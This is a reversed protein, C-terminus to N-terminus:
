LVFDYSELGTVSAGVNALAIQFDANGDGNTDGQVVYGAASHGADDFAISPMYVKRLEGAHHSFGLVGIFNFAQDGGVLENADIAKLSITDSLHTFDRIVDQNFVGSDSKSTFVFSDAGAGGILYDKGAGGYLQDSGARGYLCDNGGLGMIIDNSSSGLLVDTSSGGVTSSTTTVLSSVYATKFTGGFNSSDLVVALSHQYIAPGNKYGVWDANDVVQIGAAGSSARGDVNTVILSHKFGSEDVLRVIDGVKVSSILLAKNGAITTTGWANWGGPQPQTSYLEPTVRNLSDYSTGEFKEDPGVGTTGSVAAYYNAGARNAVAWVFDTCDIKGWYIHANAQAIAINAIEQPTVDKYDVGGSVFTYPASM